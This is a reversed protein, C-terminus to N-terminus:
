VRLKMYKEEFKYHELQVVIDKEKEGMVHEHIKAQVEELSVQIDEDFLKTVGLEAASVAKFVEKQSTARKKGSRGQHDGSQPGDELRTSKRTLDSRMSSKKIIIKGSAEPSIINTKTSTVEIPHLSASSPIRTRKRVPISAMMSGSRSKEESEEDKSKKNRSQSRLPYQMQLRSNQIKEMKQKGKEEGELQFIKPLVTEYSESVYPIHSAPALKLKKIDIYFKEEYFNEIQDDEPTEEVPKEIQIMSGPAKEVIEIVSGIKGRDQNYDIDGFSQRTHTYKRSNQRMNFVRSGVRSGIESVMSLDNRSERRDNKQGFSSNPSSLKFSDEEYQNVKQFNNSEERKLLLDSLQIKRFRSPFRIGREFLEFISNKKSTSEGVLEEPNFKEKEIPKTISKDIGAIGVFPSQIKAPSPKIVIFKQILPRIPSTPLVETLLPKAIKFSSQKKASEKRFEGETLNQHRPKPSAEHLEEQAEPLLTGQVNFSKFTFSPRIPSPSESGEKRSLNANNILQRVKRADARILNDRESTPSIIPDQSVLAKSHQSEALRPSYQEGRIVAPSEDGPTHKKFLNKLGKCLKEVTSKSSLTALKRYFKSHHPVHEIIKGNSKLEYRDSVSSHDDKYKKLLAIINVQAKQRLMQLSEDYDYEKLGGKNRANMSFVAKIVALTINLLFYSVIFVLTLFYILAIPTFANMVDYLVDTWGELTIIQFAVTLANTFTDFSTLENDPNYTTKGCVFGAPCNKAGCIIDNGGDDLYVRGSMPDFCRRKLVGAFLQVGAIAYVFLVFFLIFLSDILLPLAKLLTAVVNRLSRISSITRLPRLVRLSRLPKLNIHTSSFIIPIYATVVIVFDLMNWYDRLYAKRNAIFGLGLIKLTMELTYFGLFFNDIDNQWIFETQLPDDLALM